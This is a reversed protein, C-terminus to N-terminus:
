QIERVQLLQIPSREEVEGVAFIALEPNDRTRIENALPHIGLVTAARSSLRASNQTVCSGRDRRSDQGDLIQIPKSSSATIMKPRERTSSANTINDAATALAWVLGTAETSSMGSNTRSQCIELCNVSSTAFAM